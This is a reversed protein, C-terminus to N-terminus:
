DFVVIWIDDELKKTESIYARLSVKYKQGAVGGSVAMVQLKTGDVVALSVPDIIPDAESSGTVAVSSSGLVISEGDVMNTNFDIGIPFAEWPQKSVRHSM